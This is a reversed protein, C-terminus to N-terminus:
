VGKILAELRAIREELEDVRKELYANRAVLFENYNLAYRQEGDKKSCNISLIYCHNIYTTTGKTRCIKLM